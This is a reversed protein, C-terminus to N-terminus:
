VSFDGDVRLKEVSNCQERKVYKEDLSNQEAPWTKPM